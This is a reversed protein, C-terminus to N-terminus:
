KLIDLVYNKFEEFSVKETSTGKNLKNTAFDYEVTGYSFKPSSIIVIDEHASFIAKNGMSIKCLELFSEENNLKGENIKNLVFNFLSYGGGLSIMSNNEIYFVKDTNYFYKMKGFNITKFQSNVEVEEISYNNVEAEIADWSNKQEIANNKVVSNFKLLAGEMEKDTYVVSENIAVNFEGNEYTLTIKNGM